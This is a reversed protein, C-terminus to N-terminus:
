LFLVGKQLYSIILFTMGLLTGGIILSLTSLQRVFNQEERLKLLTYLKKQNVKPFM